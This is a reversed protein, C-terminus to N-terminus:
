STTPRPRRTSWWWTSTATTTSSAPTSCSSSRSSAGAGRTRRRGPARVPVGGAPVQLAGAHLLPHAHLRPLLLVGQRGRRPQGRPRHPRVAAGEPHPRAREVARPRLLPAPPQRLHRPPRGRGLPLRALARPRAPLLEWATATRRTTRACPAGSASPSIRGGGSGTRRDAGAGRRPPPGRGGAPPRSAAM